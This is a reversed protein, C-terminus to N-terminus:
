APFIDMVESLVDKAFQLTRDNGACLVEEAIGWTTRVKYPGGTCGLEPYAALAAVMHGPMDIEPIVMIHRDAAYKVIARAQEQTYFGGHPKADLNSADHGVMTEPRM